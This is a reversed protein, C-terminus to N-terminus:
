GAEDCRVAGWGGGGAERGGTHEEGGGVGVGEGEERGGDM